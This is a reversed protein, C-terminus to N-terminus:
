VLIINKQQSVYYSCDEPLNHLIIAIMSIIGVKFLSKDKTNSIPKDPLYYDIIMSIIIGLVIALISIIITTSNKLNNGLLLISEPILDTISVTIMVGAAFSLSAM